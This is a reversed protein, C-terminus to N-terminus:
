QLSALSTQMETLSIIWTVKKKKKKQYSIGEEFGRVFPCRVEAPVCNLVGVEQPFGGGGTWM